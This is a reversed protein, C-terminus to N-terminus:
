LLAEIGKNAVNSSAVSADEIPFEAITNIINREKCRRCGEHFKVEGM